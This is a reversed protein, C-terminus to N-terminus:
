NENKNEAMLKNAVRQRHRARQNLYVEKAAKRAHTNSGGPKRKSMADGEVM